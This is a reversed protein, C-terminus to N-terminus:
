SLASVNTVEAGDVSLTEICVVNVYEVVEVSNEEESRGGDVERIETGDIGTMGLGSM